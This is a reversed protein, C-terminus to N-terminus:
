EERDQYFMQSQLSSGTFVLDIVGAGLLTVLVELPLSPHARMGFTLLCGQPFVPHGDSLAVTSSVGHAARSMAHFLANSYWHLRCLLEILNM